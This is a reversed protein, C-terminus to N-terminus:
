LDGLFKLLKDRYIGDCCFMSDVHKGGKIRWFGKPEGALAFIKEGHHIPVVPDNDGHIVLLPIPSLNKIFDQPAYQDSVLLYALSQFPWSLWSGSLKERAIEQYSSFSSEIVVADLVATGPVENMARLLITGGLSQGYAIKKLTSERRGPEDSPTLPEIRQSNITHAYELAALADEYVKAQSPHGESQGYGRYDFTFLTYGHKVIWSLSLFHTSINEANGHFQIVTGLEEVDPVSPFVWGHLMTGDKSKFYVNQYTLQFTKPDHFLKKSPQYFVNSCSAGTLIFLLFLFTYRLLFSYYKTTINIMSYACSTFALFYNDIYYLLFLILFLLKGWVDM